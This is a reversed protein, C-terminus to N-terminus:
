RSRVVRAPNGYAVVNDPVNKLVVAGAGVLARAGIRVRGIVASGIGVWAGRGVHVEGALNVGPCIHAGDELVCDHDVTAGTNVIVNGGVRSGPGIVAGAAVVTGDGLQVDQAVISRPHIATALRFGAKRVVDALRLRQECNGIAIIISSVGQERLHALQEQGGFIRAGCFEAGQRERNVDDVFGAVHVSKTSRVIDAVVSAHGGAGWIVLSTETTSNDM